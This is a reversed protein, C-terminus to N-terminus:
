QFLSYSSLIQIAGQSGMVKLKFRVCLAFGDLSESTGIFDSKNLTAGGVMKFTEPEITNELVKITEDGEYGNVQLFIACMLLHIPGM